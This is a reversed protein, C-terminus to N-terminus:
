SEQEVRARLASPPKHLALVQLARTCWAAVRAAVVLAGELRSVAQDDRKSATRMAWSQLLPVLAKLLAILLTLSGLFMLVALVVGQAKPPLISFLHVLTEPEM